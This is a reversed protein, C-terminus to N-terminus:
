GAYYADVLCAWRQATNSGNDSCICDGYWQVDKGFGAIRVAANNKASQCAGASDYGFGQSSIVAAHASTSIAIFAIGVLAMKKTIM